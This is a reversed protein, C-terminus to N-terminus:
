VVLTQRAFPPLARLAVVEVRVAVSLNGLSGSPDIRRSQSGPSSGYTQTTVDM